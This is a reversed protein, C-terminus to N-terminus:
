GPSNEVDKERSPWQELSVLVLLDVALVLFHFEAKLPLHVLFNINQGNGEQLAHKQGIRLFPYSCLIGKVM